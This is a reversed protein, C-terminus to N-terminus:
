KVALTHGDAKKTQEMQTMCLRLMAPSLRAANKIFIDIKMYCIQLFCEM